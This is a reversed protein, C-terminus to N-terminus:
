SLQTQTIGTFTVCSLSDLTMVYTGARLSQIKSTGSITTNTLGALQITSLGNNVITVQNSMGARANPMAAVIDAAPGLALTALSGTLALTAIQAATLGTVSATALMTATQPTVAAVPLPSLQGAEVCRITVATASTITVLYRGWTLPPLILNGALTVGAGAALTQAFAVTNDIILPWSQGVSYGPVAAIIAAATDTTDTYAATSGSRTIVGGVIAAALLTGAGVTALATNAAFGQVGAAAFGANAQGVLTNLDSGDILRPGPTFTQTIAVM